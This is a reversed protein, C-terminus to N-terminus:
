NPKKRTGIKGLLRRFARKSIPKRARLREYVQRKLAKQELMVYPNVHVCSLIEGFEYNLEGMTHTLFNRMINNDYNIISKEISQIAKYEAISYKPIIQHLMAADILGSNLYELFFLKEADTM